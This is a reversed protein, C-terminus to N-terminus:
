MFIGTIKKYDIEVNTFGKDFVISVEFLSKNKIFELQYFEECPFIEYLSKYFSYRRYIEKENLVQYCHNISFLAQEYQDIEIRISYKIDSLLIFNQKKIFAINKESEYDQFFSFNKKYMNDVLSLVKKLFEEEEFSKISNM